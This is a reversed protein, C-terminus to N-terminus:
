LGRPDKATEVENWNDAGKIKALSEFSLQGRMFAYMKPYSDRLAAIKRERVQVRVKHQERLM